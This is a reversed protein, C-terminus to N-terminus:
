GRTSTPASRWATPGASGPPASRSSRAPSRARTTRPARRGAARAAFPSAEAIGVIGAEAWGHFVAVNEAPRSRSRRRTSRSWTPTSPAATTTALEARAIAFDARLEVLPLVRRRLAAVGEGDPARAHEIRGLNTASHEWGLPGAFDVLRRAALPGHLRERAEDDLLQWSGDSLPAIDRLLHNMAGSGEPQRHRALRRRRGLQGRRAGAASRRGVDESAAEAAEGNEVIDGAQFLIGEAIARWRPTRRLLSELDMAFHKFEEGQADEM